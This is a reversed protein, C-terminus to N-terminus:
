MSFRMVEGAENTRFKNGPKFTWGAEDLLKNSDQVGFTKWGANANYFYSINPIPGFTESGMGNLGVSILNARNVGVSIAQRVKIESLFQPAIPESNSPNKRLNFYLGWFQKYLVPSLHEIIQNYPKARDRFITSATAISHVEGNLLAEFAADTSKYYVFKINNIQSKAPKNNFYEFHSLKVFSSTVEDLKFKGTGIPSRYLSPEASNVNQANIDSIKHAPLINFSVLELFNSFIPYGLDDSTSESFNDNFCIETSAIQPITCIRFTLEDLKVWQMQRLTRTYISSNEDLSKILDFTAIVDDSTLTRIDGNPIHDHWFVGSKLSIEYNAGPRLTLINDALIRKIGGVNQGGTSSVYTYQLLPEFVLNVIDKELQNNSPIIPNVKTIKQPLGGEGVGTAVGEILTTSSSGIVRPLRTIFLPVSLTVVILIGFVFHSYPVTTSYYKEFKIRVDNEKSFIDPYSWFLNRINYFFAEIGSIRKYLFSLISNLLKM